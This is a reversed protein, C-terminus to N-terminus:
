NLATAMELHHKLTPLTKSAFAKLEPDKGSKAETEFLSVTSRHDSVMQAKYAKDFDKGSKGQLKDVVKQHAKDLSTPAKMNKQALVAKLEDNAKGHDTVMQAGFQKVSESSGKAKAIDGAAVETMGSLAAKEVFKEDAAHTLGSLVIAAVMISPKLGTSFKFSM